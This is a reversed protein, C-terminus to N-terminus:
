QHHLRRDVHGRKKIQHENNIVQMLHKTIM